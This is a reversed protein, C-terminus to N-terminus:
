SHTLGEAIATHYQIQRFHMKLSLRGRPSPTLTLQRILNM